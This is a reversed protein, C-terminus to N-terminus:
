FRAVAVAMAVSNSNLMTIAVSGVLFCGTKWVDV